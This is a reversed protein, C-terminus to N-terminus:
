IPHMPSPRPSNDAAQRKSRFTQYFGAIKERFTKELVVEYVDLGQDALEDLVNHISERVDISSGHAKTFPWHPM